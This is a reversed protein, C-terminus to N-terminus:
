IHPAHITKFYDLDPCTKWEVFHFIKWIGQESKFNKVPLLLGSALLGERHATSPFSTITLTKAGWSMKTKLAVTVDGRCPAHIVQEVSRAKISSCLWLDIGTVTYIKNKVVNTSTYVMCSLWFLVLAANHVYKRRNRRQLQVVHLRFVEKFKQLKLFKSVSCEM